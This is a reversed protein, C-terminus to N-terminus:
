SHTAQTGSDTFTGGAAPLFRWSYSHAHLTLELVGFTGAHRVESNAATAGFVQPPAGGTGVIFERIGKPDAKGAPSQLAFREYLHDHGDLILDAHAAYLDQWWIDYASRSLLGSTFVPIHWMAIIHKGASAALDARLWTEQPSGAGTGGVELGQTNLVIVHWNNALDYSYYGKGAPGAASGFYAYYPACGATMCDHNGITARTRDLFAGWTKAYCSTYQSATGTENSNDGLTFVRAGPRAEILRATAAANGIISTVCIDGAGILVPDGQAPPTGSPGPTASPHPSATQTPASSPGATPRASTTSSPTATPATSTTSSSSPSATATPAATATATPHVTATSSPGSGLTLLLTPPNASERSGFSIATASRDLIALDVSGGARVAPTVDVDTSTDAAFAGASGLSKSSLAPATTWNLGSETWGGSTVYVDYGTTSASNAYLRLTARQVTGSVTKVDFRLFADVTPSGDVRLQAAGGFNTTPASSDAYTDASAIVSVTTQAQTRPVGAFAVVAAIAISFAVAAAARGGLWVRGARPVRGPRHLSAPNM